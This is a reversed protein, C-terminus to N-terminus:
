AEGTGGAGTEYTGAGGAAQRAVRPELQRHGALVDLHMTIRALLEGKPVPKVLYDNGGAAFGEELDEPRGKATVFIVPLETKPFRRRLERCVEYGSKRPMMIDLLVLDVGDLRELAQFGDAAERVTYGAVELQSRLIMRNIPEDDVVLIRGQDTNRAMVAQAAPPQEHALDQGPVARLEETFRLSNQREAVVTGPEAIAAMEVGSPATPLTFTFTAGEGPESAVSLLGGHLEVLRRSVALGLGTGGLQRATSGDAQEFARFIREHHEPAIGIGTDRVSISVMEGAHRASVEVEGSDTCRIANGVLNLLIQELRQEDAYAPPLDEPIAQLLELRKGEALPRLLEFVTTLVTGLVLPKRVLEIQDQRIKSFDLVDGVLRQLRHGSATEIWQEDFGELRYAYRNKRPSAFHLAAFEFGIVKHRHNLVLDPNTTISQALPSSAQRRTLPVSENFLLFDTLAVTPPMPDDSIQEPFSATVGGDGGFFIEGGPNRFVSKIYFVSGHVGHATDYNRFTGSGPDLRSIGRGTSMWIDGRSGEALAVIHDSALGDRHGYRRFKGGSRDLRNLGDLTGVWFSGAEDDLMSTVKNSSLSEPDGPDRSYHSFATAEPDRGLALHSLGVATAVWLDGTRDEYLGYVDNSPLSDPAAPDHQYNTIERRDPDFRQIGDNYTGIWLDGARDTMLCYIFDNPSKPDDPDQRYRTFTQRDTGLRHLGEGTTGIWLEDGPGVALSTIANTALGDPHDPDARYVVSTGAQRDVATLGADQTGIWLVGKSDEAMGWVMNGSLSIDEGPRQRLTMFQERRRDFKTLDKRTAIWLIGSRDEHIAFPENSSLSHPDQPNHQFQTFIEEGDETTTRVVVGRGTALWIEGARSEVIDYIDLDALAEVPEISDQGPSLRGLGGTTALWIRGKPGEYLDNILVDPLSLIHDFREGQPDYRDLGEETAIWLGGHLDEMLGWIGGRSPSGPDNSDHPFRTFSKRDRDLRSLGAETGVWLNGSRDLGNATAFWLFGRRDQLVDWVTSHSLGDEVTIREVFDFRPPEALGPGAALGLALIGVVFFCEATRRSGFYMASSTRM